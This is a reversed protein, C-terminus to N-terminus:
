SRRFALVVNHGGFGFSNNLATLPGDGLTRPEGRVIDLGVEDDLDDVNVTPPITRHYLSLITAVAEVAGAGGLLHGIMSKPATVPIGAAATGFVSRIALAEAVDGVPTSTAHANIHHVRDPTLGADQLAFQTAAIVGRGEPEPQAIHHGDSSLGVGAVEGYVRAGRATAHAESELIVLGSGEGLVFGDRAKDYPRSARGPEDNRKSLAQMNAFAAIPLPHIVAEAGGAIVVDARGRRIMDLANGIAEAGSSCASVPTHVGARAGYQLGVNAAPSNPMLMPIALPSVRRPGGAVLKDYNDLLTTLGGIGSAVVVGLREPDVAPGEEGDPSPLGADAWAERAAIMALQASRDLRRAQVRPLVDAPDVAVPAGITVPMDMDTVWDYPLTRVGTRGSLLGDWTSAVDGGLPTTAGLGTVVVRAQTDSM